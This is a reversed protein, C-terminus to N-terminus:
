KTTRPENLWQSLEASLSAVLDPHEVLVNHKENPDTDVDFLEVPKGKFALLKWNGRRVVETAFPKPKPTHRQLSKYLDLQWFVTGREEDSPPPGGKWHPLLSLGDLSLEGPVDVGAADCFSPLLDNTHGFAQSTQGPPITAPWRVIMPVRIGGDHLDTKGGKLDHIFGEFAAGNDSTFLVLTNDAIKLEDLKQLIEGVKADMHQVMSRFRHQDDSIGAAATDSWHPEPAPEYPKHPVLWWMNIFFPADENSLKEIMEVAFDGNADTFHKPYYPDDESIQQDNRLLVTGGKRFLTKDRGMKGRLPQQEIQTQYFDFGHQRPGPQNTLRKGTEDVHLGGLHWKGVHATNYGADSLLEAVTTASEPLWGNRDNFHKTIGFRLPYRGTLVSARTPSCVASGAYFRDCKLGESALRDLHPTKVAPSGFCSLDGYGLDDALLLIINPRGAAHLLTANALFVVAICAIALSHILPKM